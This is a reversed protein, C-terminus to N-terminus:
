ALLAVAALAAQVATRWALPGVTGATRAGIAAADTLTFKVAFLANALMTVGFARRQAMGAALSLVYLGTCFVTSGTAALMSLFLPTTKEPSVKYMSATEKPTLHILAGLLAIISGSVFPSVSGKVTFRGLVAFAAASLVAPGKPKEYFENAPICAITSWASATMAMAAASQASKMGAMLVFANVVQWAGIQRVQYYASDGIGDDGTIGYTDTNFKPAIWAAIGSVAICGATGHTLAAASVTPLISAEPAPARAKVATHLGVPAIRLASSVTSLALVSFLLRM